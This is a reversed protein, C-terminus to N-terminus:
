SKVGKTFFLGGRLFAVAFSIGWVLSVALEALTKPRSVFLNVVGAVFWAVGINSLFEAILKKQGASLKKM